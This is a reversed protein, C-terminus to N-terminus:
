SFPPLPGTQRAAWERVHAHVDIAVVTRDDPTEFAKVSIGSAALLRLAASWNGDHRGEEFAAAFAASVDARRALEALSCGRALRVQRLLAGAREVTGSFELIEDM